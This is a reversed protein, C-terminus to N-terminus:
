NVSKRDKWWEALSDRSDRRLNFPVRQADITNESEAGVTQGLESIVLSDSHYTLARANGQATQGRGFGEGGMRARISYTVTDGKGNTKSFDTKVQIISNTDDGELKAIDSTEREYAATEQSWTKIAMADNVAFSTSSM